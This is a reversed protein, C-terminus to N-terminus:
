CLVVEERGEPCFEEARVGVGEMFELLVLFEEAVDSGLGYLIFVNELVM